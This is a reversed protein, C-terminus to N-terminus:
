TGNIIIRETDYGISESFSILSQIIRFDEPFRRTLVWLYKKSLSGIVSFTQYDTLEVQYYGSFIGFRVRLSFGKGDNIMTATGITSDILKGDFGISENIVSVGSEDVIYQARAYKQRRGEFPNPLRASEYWTGSYKKLDLM